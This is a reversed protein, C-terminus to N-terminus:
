EVIASSKKILVCFVSNHVQCHVSNEHFVVVMSVPYSSTDVLACDLIETLAEAHSHFERVKQWSAVLDQRYYIEVFASISRSTEM